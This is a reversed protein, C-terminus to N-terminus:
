TMAWYIKAKELNESEYYKCYLENSDNVLGIKYWGDTDLVLWVNWGFRGIKQELIKM